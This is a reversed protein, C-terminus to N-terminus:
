VYPEMLVVRFVLFSNAKGIGVLAMKWSYVLGVAFAGILCAISQM